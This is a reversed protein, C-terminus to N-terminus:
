MRAITKTTLILISVNVSVRLLRTARQRKRAEGSLESKLAAELKKIAAQQPNQSRGSEIKYVAVPSLSAKTALEPVSLKSALRHKNLLAGIVSLTELADQM